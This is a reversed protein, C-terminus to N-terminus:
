SSMAPISCCARSWISGRSRAPRSSAGARAHSTIGRASMMEITAERLPRFGRTPGYQLVSGDTGTLLERRNGHVDVM